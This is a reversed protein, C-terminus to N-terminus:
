SFSKTSCGAFFCQLVLFVLLSFFPHRCRLYRNLLMFVATMVKGPSDWHLSSFCWSSCFVTSNVCWAWSSVPGSVCVYTSWIFELRRFFTEAKTHASVYRSWHAEGITSYYVITPLLASFSWLLLTPFFQSIIPSQLGSRFSQLHWVKPVTLLTFTHPERQSLPHAEDRQVQRHHHYHNHSDHPLHATHLPLLQDARLAFVLFM